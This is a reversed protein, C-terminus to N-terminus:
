LFHPGAGQQNTRKGRLIKRGSCRQPVLAASGSINQVAGQFLIGKEPAKGQAFAAKGIMEECSFFVATQHAKEMGNGRLCEATCSFTDAIHGTQHDPRIHAGSANSARKELLFDAAQLGAPSIRDLNGTDIGHVQGPSDRARRSMIVVIHGTQIGLTCAGTEEPVHPKIRHVGFDGHVQVQLIIM